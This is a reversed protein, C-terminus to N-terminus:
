ANFPGVEYEDLRGKRSSKKREPSKNDSSSSPPAERRYSGSVPSRSISSDSSSRTRKHRDSRTARRTRRDSSRSRTGSGKSRERSRSRSRSRSRDREDPSRRRQRRTTRRDNNKRNNNNNNRAGSLRRKLSANEERLANLEAAAKKHADFKYKKFFEPDRKGVPQSMEVFWDRVQNYTLQPILNGTNPPFTPATVRKAGGGKGKAAPKTGARRASRTLAMETDRLASSAILSTYDSHISEFIKMWSDQINTMLEKSTTQLEQVNLARCLFARIFTDDQIAAAQAVELKKVSTRVSSYFSSFGDLDDCSLNFLKQWEDFMKAMKIDVTSLHDGLKKFVLYCSKEDKLETALFSLINSKSLSQRIRSALADSWDPNDDCVQSDNIYSSVANSSFVREIDELYDGGEIAEGSFIPVDFTPLKSTGSFSVSSKQAQVRDIEVSYAHLDAYCVHRRLYYGQDVIKKTYSAVTKLCRMVPTTIPKLEPDDRAPESWDGEQMIALSSDNEIGEKDFYAKFATVLSQKATDDRNLHDSILRGVVDAMEEKSKCVSFQGFPCTVPHSFPAPTTASRGANAEVTRSLDRPTPLGPASGEEDSM